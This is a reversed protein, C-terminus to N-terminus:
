HPEPPRSAQASVTGKARAVVRDGVIEVLGAGMGPGKLVVVAEIEDKYTLGNKHLKTKNFRGCAEVTEGPAIKPFYGFAFVQVVGSGDDLKARFLHKGTAKGFKEDLDAVKGSVCLSHGDLIERDRVVDGPKALLEASAPLALLLLVLARM